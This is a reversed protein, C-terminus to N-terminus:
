KNFFKYFFLFYFFYLINYLEVVFDVINVLFFERYKIPFLYFLQKTKIFCFLPYITVDYEILFDYLLLITAFSTFSAIDYNQKDSFLCLPLCNFRLNYNKLNVRYLICGTKTELAFFKSTKQSVNCFNRDLLEFFCLNYMNEVHVKKLLFGL